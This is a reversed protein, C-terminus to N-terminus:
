PIRRLHAFCAWRPTEWGTYIDDIKDHFNDMQEGQAKLKLSPTLTM